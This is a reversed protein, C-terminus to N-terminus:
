IFEMGGGDSTAYITIFFPPAVRALKNIMLNILEPISYGAVILILGYMKRKGTKRPEM